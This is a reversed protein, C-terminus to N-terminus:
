ARSGPAALVRCGGCSPGEIVGGLGAAGGGFCVDREVLDLRERRTYATVRSARHTGRSPRPQCAKRNPSSVTAKARTPHAVMRDTQRTNVSHQTAVETRQPTPAPERLRTRHAVDRAWSDPEQEGVDIPREHSRLLGQGPPGVTVSRAARTDTIPVLRTPPSAQSSRGPSQHSSATAVQLGESRSRRRDASSGPSSSRRESRPSSAGHNTRNFVNRDFSALGPQAAEGLHPLGFLDEITRLLSYHNYAASPTTGPKIFPSVLVAGVRGGGPGNGGPARTNPGTPETCCASSDDASEDFTVILLGNQRFAASSTIRPVWTSLFRNIGAFGGPLSTNACTADHGDSCLDPTIFSFNPTRAAHALDPGLATLAVVHSDCYAQNAIISEFYVFPDHRTAYQDTPTAVQTHDAAGIAPHGCTASERTPDSGMSQEYAKWSLHHATLQNALTQVTAPYVCGSGRAQGFAGITGPTLPVFTPCDSQTAPNPAQGSIMAIYNDLSHHGIAYYNPVFAGLAPLTKALYLAPSSPGFSAAADENELVIVFVHRIAPLKAATALAPVACLAVACLAALTRAPRRRHQTLGASRRM